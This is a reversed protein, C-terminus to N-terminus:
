VQKNRLSEQLLQVKSARHYSTLVRIFLWGVGQCHLNKNWSSIASLSVEWNCVHCGLAEWVLGPLLLSLRVMPKKLFRVGLPKWKGAFSGTVEWGTSPTYLLFLHFRRVASHRYLVNWSSWGTIKNLELVFNLDRCLYPYRRLFLIFVDTNSPINVETADRIVSDVVHRLMKTDAQDRKNSQM